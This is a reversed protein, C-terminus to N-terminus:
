GPGRHALKPRGCESGARGEAYFRERWQSVSDRSCNLRAAIEENRLGQAVLLAMQSSVVRRHLSKLDPSM